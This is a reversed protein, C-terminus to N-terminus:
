IDGKRLYVNNLWPLELKVYHEDVWAELEAHHRVNQLRGMVVIKPRAAEMEDILSAFGGPRRAAVYDDSGTNFEIYPNLNPKDLLVLLEAPGHVYIKDDASLYSGIIRAEAYQDSLTRGEARYTGAHHLIIFAVLSIVAAPILRGVRVRKSIRGLSWYAGLADSARVFFWAGFLGVFPLFPITDPASQFNLMCFALYIIPPMLLADRYLDAPGPTARGRLKERVRDYGFLLLGAAAIEVFVFDEYFVRDRMVTVIDSWAQSAPRLGAPMFVKYDYTFAWGWWDGLAVRSYFYLLVVLLPVAAGSVVRVARLDRWSTLYRSFILFAVGAFMLGPQWCLCSLMSCFGAWFPRDRAVLLLALMGFVMMLLKPQTGEVMMLSYRSPVLPIMFALIAAIRSAFFERAVMATLLSLIGALVIYVYRVALVEQIGLRRGAWMAAASVYMAGPGKPDIIDRYPMGGRLITQAIYEYIAPDGREPQSLPRYVFSIGVTICLAAAPIAWRWAKLTAVPKELPEPRARAEEVRSDTGANTSESETPSVM